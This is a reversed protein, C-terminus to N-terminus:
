REKKRVGGAPTGRVVGGDMEDLLDSASKDIQASEAGTKAGQSPKLTDNFMRAKFRPTRNFRNYEQTTSINAHGVM